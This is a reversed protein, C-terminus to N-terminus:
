RYLWRLRFGPVSETTGAADIPGAPLVVLGCTTPLLPTLELYHPLCLPFYYTRRWVPSPAFHVEQGSLIFTILTVTVGMKGRWEANNQRATTFVRPPYFLRAARRRGGLSALRAQESVAPLLCAEETRARWLTPKQYSATKSFPASPFRRGPMCCPVCILSLLPLLLCFYSFPLNACCSDM